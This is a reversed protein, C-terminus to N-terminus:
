KKAEREKDRIAKMQALRRERKAYYYASSGCNPSCFRKRKHAYIDIAKGCYECFRDSKKEEKVPAVPKAKQLAKWAGYHCGFGDKKCQIMDASLNDM